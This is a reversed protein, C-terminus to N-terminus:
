YVFYVETELAAKVIQRFQSAIAPNPRTVIGWLASIRFGGSLRSVDAATISIATYIIYGYKKNTLFFLCIEGSVSIKGYVPEIINKVCIIGRIHLNPPYFPLFKNLRM